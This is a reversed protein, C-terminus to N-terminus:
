SRYFLSGLGSFIVIVFYWGNFTQLVDIGDYEGEVGTLESLQCVMHRSTNWKNKSAKASILLHDNRRNYQMSMFPGEIPLVKKVIEDGSTYHAVIQNLRFIVSILSVFIRWICLCCRSNLKGARSSAVTRCLDDPVLLYTLCPYSAVKIKITLRKWLKKRNWDLNDKILPLGRGM